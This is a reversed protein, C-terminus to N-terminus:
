RTLLQSREKPIQILTLNIATPLTILLYLLGTISRSYSILLGFLYGSFEMELQPLFFFFPLDIGYAM